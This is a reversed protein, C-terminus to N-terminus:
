PTRKELNRQTAQILAEGKEKSPSDFIVMVYNKYFRATTWRGNETKIVKSSSSEPMYAKVFGQFGGTAL